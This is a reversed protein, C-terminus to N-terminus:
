DVLNKLTRWKTLIWKNWRFPELCMPSKKKPIRDSSCFYLRYDSIILSKKKAQWWLPIATFIICCSHLLYLGTHVIFKFLYIFDDVFIEDIPWTNLCARHWTSFLHLSFISYLFFFSLWLKKLYIYSVQPHQFRAERSSLHCSYLYGNQPLTTAVPPPM